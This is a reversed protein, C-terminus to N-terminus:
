NTRQDIQIWWARADAKEERLFLNHEKVGWPMTLSKRENTPKRWFVRSLVQLEKFACNAGM